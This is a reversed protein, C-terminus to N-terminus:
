QNALNWAAVAVSRKTHLKELPMWVPCDIDKVWLLVHPRRAFKPKVLSAGLQKRLTRNTKSVCEVTGRCVRGALTVWYRVVGKEPIQQIRQM